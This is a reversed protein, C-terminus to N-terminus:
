QTYREPHLYMNGARVGQEFGEIIKRPDTTLRQVDFGEPPYIVEINPHNYEMDDLIFNYKNHFDDLERVLHQYRQDNYYKEILMRIILSEQKKRYGKPRTALVLIDEDRYGMKLPWYFPIPDLTGGDLLKYGKYEVFGRYMFPIAATAKLVVSLDDKKSNFYITELPHDDKCNVATIIVPCGKRVLKIDLYEPSNLFFDIMWDLNLMHKETNFINKLQILNESLQESFFADRAIHIQGATYACGALAGASSGVILKFPFYKQDTFAQLVGTLFVGSMAGGEIVLVKRERRKKFLNGLNFLGM